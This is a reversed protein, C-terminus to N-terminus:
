RPVPAVEKLAKASIGKISAPVAPDTWLAEIEKRAVSRAFPAASPAAAPKPLGSAYHKALVGLVKARGSLDTFVIRDNLKETRVQERTSSYGAGGGVVFWGVRIGADASGSFHEYLYDLSQSDAYVAFSMGRGVLLTKPILELQGGPGWVANYADGKLMPAFRSVLNGDFWEGRVVNFTDLNEFSIDIRTVNNRIHQERRVQEVSAGGARFIGLFNVSVSAKWKQEFYDSHSSTEVISQGQPNDERLFAYIDKDLYSSLHTEWRDRENLVERSPPIEVRQKPNDFRIKANTLLQIDADAIGSTLVKMTERAEDLTRRRAALEADYGQDKFFEEKSKRRLFPTNAAYTEYAKNAEDVKENYIARSFELAESARRIAVKVSAGMSGNAEVAAVFASTLFYNYGKWVRKDSNPSYSWAHSPMWDGWKHMEMLRVISNHDDWAANTAIPLILVTEDKAVQGFRSEFYKYMRSWAPVGFDGFIPAALAPAAAGLALAVSLAKLKRIM